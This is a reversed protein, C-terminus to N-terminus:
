KKLLMKWPSLSGLIIFYLCFLSQCLSWVGRFTLFLQSIEATKPFHLLSCVGAGPDAPSGLSAIRVSEKFADQGFAWASYFMQETKRLNRRLLFSINQPQLPLWTLCMEPNLMSHILPVYLYLFIFKFLAFISTDFSIEMGVIYIYIYLKWWPSFINLCQVNILLNHM